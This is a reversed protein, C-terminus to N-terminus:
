IPRRSFQWFVRFGVVALMGPWSRGDLPPAWEVTTTLGSSLPPCPAPGCLVVEHVAVHVPELYVPPVLGGVRGYAGEM